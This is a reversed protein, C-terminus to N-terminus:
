GIREHTVKDEFVTCSRSHFAILFLSGFHVLFYFLFRDSLCSLIVYVQCSGFYLQSVWKLIFLGVPFRKKIVPNKIQITRADHSIYLDWTDGDIKRNIMSCGGFNQFVPDPM